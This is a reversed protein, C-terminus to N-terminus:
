ENISGFVNYHIRYISKFVRKIPAFTSAFVYLLVGYVIGFINALIADNAFVMVVPLCLVFAIVANVFDFTRIM